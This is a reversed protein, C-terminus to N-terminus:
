LQNDKEDLVENMAKSIHDALEMLLHGKARKDSDLNEASVYAMNSGDFSPELWVKIPGDFQKLLESDKRISIDKDSM